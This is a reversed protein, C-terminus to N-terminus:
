KSRKWLRPYTGPQMLVRNLKIANGKNRGLADMAGMLAEGVAVGEGKQTMVAVVQGKSYTGEVRQIGPVAVDAGHCVADVASDKIFIKPLDDLMREYPLIIRRLETEDGTEQFRVHADKLQHLSFMRSEDFHGSRTRRLELMHGGVALADGIDRCLTRIYTGSECEARFLVNRNKVALIKLDHITRIRQERKVAARVPPIQFIPGTFESFVREIDKRQVQAHLKLVGVYEKTGLLMVGLAKAADDFAIILVGSVNPDLTGAHGAKEAGVMNRVWASVQHSTPGQPKDVIVIGKRLYDKIPREDPRVGFSSASLPEESPM